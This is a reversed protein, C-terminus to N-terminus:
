NFSFGEKFQQNSKMDNESHVHVNVRQDAGIVELLTNSDLKLDEGWQKTAPWESALQQMMCPKNIRVCSGFFNMTNIAAGAKFIPIDKDVNLQARNADLYNFTNSNLGKLIKLANNISGGDPRFYLVYIIFLIFTMAMMLFVNKIYYPTKYCCRFLSNQKLQYLTL